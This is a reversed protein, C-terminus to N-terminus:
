SIVRRMMEALAPNGNTAHADTIREREEDSKKQSLKLTPRQQEIKMEFGAIASFLAAWIDGPTEGATWAEGELSGEQKEILEHLFTELEEDALSRVPGELELAVYDWTPVTARNEYWRPSVYDHPGDVVALATAGALHKTLANSRALHFRLRGGEKLVFPTHAVRPGEPTTLFVKGFGIEDILEALFDNDESRFLPNPHM